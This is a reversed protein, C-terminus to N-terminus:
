QTAKQVNSVQAFIVEATDTVEIWAGDFTQVNASVGHWRQSVGAEKVQLIAAPNLFLQRGDRCTLRIM